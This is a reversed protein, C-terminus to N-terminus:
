SGRKAGAIAHLAGDVVQQRTMTAGRERASRFRDSGLRRRATAMARGLRESETGFVSGDGQQVRVASAMAIAAEDDGIRVLLEALNRLTTWQQPWSGSRRWHGVLDAFVPLAEFPDGHRARLSASTVPAVGDVFWAGASRALESAEDVLVIAREPDEDALCEGRAYRVFAGVGEAAEEVAVAEEIRLRAVEVDGGYARM